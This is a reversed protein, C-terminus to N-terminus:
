PTVKAFPSAEAARRLSDKALVAQLARHASCMDNTQQIGPRQIYAHLQVDMQEAADGLEALQQHVSVINLISKSCSDCYNRDGAWQKHQTLEVRLRENDARLQDIFDLGEGWKAKLADREATLLEYELVTYSGRDTM